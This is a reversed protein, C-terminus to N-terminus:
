KSRKNILESIDPWPFERCGDSKMKTVVKEFLDPLDSTTNCQLAKIKVKGRYVFVASLHPAMLVNFYHRGNSLVKRTFFSEDPKVSWDSIEIFVSRNIFWGTTSLLIKIAYDAQALTIVGDVLDNLIREYAEIAKFTMEEKSTPVPNASM